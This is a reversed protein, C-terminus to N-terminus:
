YKGYAKLWSDACDIWVEPAILSDKNELLRNKDKVIQEAYRFVAEIVFAQHLPGLNMYTRVKQLNSISQKNM